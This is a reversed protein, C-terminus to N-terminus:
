RADGNEPKGNDKLRKGTLAFFVEELTVDEGNTSVQSKLNGPTDMAVFRGYDIIAVRDCLRDAEQM